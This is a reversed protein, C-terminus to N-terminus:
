WRQAQQAQAQASWALQAARHAVQAVQAAYVKQAPTKASHAFRTAQAAQWQAAQVAHAAQAKQWQAQVACTAQWQAQQAKLHAAMAAVQTQAEAENLEAKQQNNQAKRATKQEKKRASMGEVRPSSAAEVSESDVPPSPALVQSQLTEDVAELSPEPIEFGGEPEHGSKENVRLTLLAGILSALSPEEEDPQEAICTIEHCTSVDASKPETQFQEPADECAQELQEEDEISVEDASASAGTPTQTSASDEADDSAWSDDALPPCPADLQLDTDQFSPENKCCGIHQQFSGYDGTWDCKGGKRCNVNNSCRVRTSCLMQWLLASGGAGDSCVTNLDAECLPEKCVPCPVSRSVARKAWTQNDPHVAFWKAMCDGCFLHSCSTLKPQCGVVSTQCIKCIFEEVMEREDSDADALLQETLVKVEVAQQEEEQDSSSSYTDPVPPVDDFRGTEVPDAVPGTKPSNAKVQKGLEQFKQLEKEIAARAAALKDKPASKTATTWKRIQTRYSQMSEAAAKLNNAHEEKEAADALSKAWDLNRAFERVDGDIQKLARAIDQPMSTKAAGSM